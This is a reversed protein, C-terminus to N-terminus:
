ECPVVRRIGPMIAIASGVAFATVATELKWNGTELFFLAGLKEPFQFSSVPL